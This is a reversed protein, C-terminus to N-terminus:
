VNSWLNFLSTDIDVSLFRNSYLHLELQLCNASTLPHQNWSENFSKLSQNIRPIYTCANIFLEFVTNSCNNASCSLYVVLHSFGDIEGHIEVKDYVM